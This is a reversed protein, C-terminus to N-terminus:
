RAALLLTAEAFSVRLDTAIRCNLWRQTYPQLQPGVHGHSGLQQGVNSASRRHAETGCGDEKASTVSLRGRKVIPDGPALTTAQHFLHCLLPESPAVAVRDADVLPSVSGAQYPPRTSDNALLHGALTAPQVWVAGTPPATHCRLPCRTLRCGRCIGAYGRGRGPTLSVDPRATRLMREGRMARRSLLCLSPYRVHLESSDVPSLGAGHVM